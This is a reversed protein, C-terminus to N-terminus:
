NNNTEIPCSISGVEKIIFPIIKGFRDYKIGGAKIVGLFRAKPIYNELVSSANSRRLWDRFLVFRTNTGSDWASGSIAQHLITDSEVRIRTTTQSILVIAINHTAALKGLRSIVDSMVAWRRSASWQAADSKRSSDKPPETSQVTKPFALTLLISVSDIVLLATNPPPFSAPPHMILALLHPLTPVDFHLFRSLNDELTENFPSSHPALAEIASTLISKLRM